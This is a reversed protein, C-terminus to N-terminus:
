KGEERHACATLNKDTIIRGNIIIIFLSSFLIIHTYRAVTHMICLLLIDDNYYSRERPMPVPQVRRRRRHPFLVDEREREYGRHTYYYYYYYHSIINECQVSASGNDYSVYVGGDDRVSCM